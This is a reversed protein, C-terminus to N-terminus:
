QPPEMVCAQGMGLDTRLWEGKELSYPHPQFIGLKQNHSPRGSSWGEGPLGGLTAENFYFVRRDGLFNCPNRSGQTLFGPLLPCLLDEM